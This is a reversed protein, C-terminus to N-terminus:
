LTSMSFSLNENLCKTHNIGTMDCRFEESKSVSDYISEAGGVYKTMDGAHVVM